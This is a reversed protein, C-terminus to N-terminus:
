CDAAIHNIEKHCNHCYLKGNSKANCDLVTMASEQRQQDNVNAAAHCHKEDLLINITFFTTSDKDIKIQRVMGDWSDAENPDYLLTSLLICTAIHEPIDWEAVTLHQLAEQFHM